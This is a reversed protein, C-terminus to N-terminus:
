GGNAATGTASPAAAPTPKAPADGKADATAVKEPVGLVALVEPYVRDAFYESGAMTFHIRDEARITQPKRSSGVKAQELLAGDDTTVMPATDVYTEGRALVADKQIERILELKTELSKLGMTPLGLWVVKRTDDDIDALFADMRARYDAAWAERDAWPVRKGKKTAPTMDQGDNGGMIVVVLAPKRLEIQKKAEATWDFFDPRALGSASKGKRHCVIDPHADLKKELLAGFGTAALSDGLILVGHPGAPAAPPEPEPTPSPEVEAVPASTKTLTADPKAEPKTATPSPTPSPEAAPAAAVPQPQTSEPAPGPEARCAVLLLGTAIASASACTRDWLSRPSFTFRSRAIM